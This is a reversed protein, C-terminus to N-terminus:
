QAVWVQGGFLVSTPNTAFTPCVIKIEYFDGAVVAIALDTKSYQTATQSLDVANSILYDTTNNHRIYVSVAENTGLVGVRVILRAITVTGPANFYVRARGSTAGVGTGYTGGVYGTDGDGPSWSTASFQTDYGRDVWTNLKGSGDAIPIKSATPTATANAPNQVVLSSGDLSAV